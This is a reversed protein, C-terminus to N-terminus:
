HRSSWSRKHANGNAAAPSDHANDQAKNAQKAKDNKKGGKKKEDKNNKNDKKGKGDKKGSGKQDANAATKDASRKMGKAAGNRVPGAQAATAPAAGAGQSVVVCNGFGATTTFSALCLNKSAGGTCSTGAPLQATLQQTTDNTPADDGNVIMKAAVFNNGTGTGDVEVTKIARSGDAGPNFNTISPLFNGNADAKVATSTDLNQAININGCPQASSPRQVDNRTFDGKVGLAPTIGAHANVSSTLALLFIPAIFSKSFM